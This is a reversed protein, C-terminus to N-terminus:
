EDDEDSDAESEDDDEELWEFWRNLQRLADLKGPVSDDVNDRWEIFADQEAIDNDYMHHFVAEILGKPFGLGHIAAQLVNLAAVAAPTEQMFVTLVLGYENPATWTAAKTLPATVELVARMVAAAAEQKDFAKMAEFLSKALDKGKAGSAVAAAAVGDPTLDEKSESPLSELHDKIAPTLQDVTLVDAAMLATVLSSYRDVAEPSADSPLTELGEVLQEDSLVRPKSKGKKGPGSKWPKCAGVLLGTLKSRLGGEDARVLAQVVCAALEAHCQPVEMTTVDSLAASVANLSVDAMFDDVIRTANRRFTARALTADARASSKLSPPQLDKKPAAGPAEAVGSSGGPASRPAPGSGAAEAAARRAAPPM